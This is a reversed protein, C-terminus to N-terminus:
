PKKSGSGRGSVGVSSVNYSFTTKYGKSSGSITLKGTGKLGYASWVCNVTQSKKTNKLPTKFRGKTVLSDGDSYKLRVTATNYSTLKLTGKFTYPGESGKVHYKGLVGASASAIGLVLMAIIALILQTLKTKM